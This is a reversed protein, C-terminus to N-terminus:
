VVQAPNVPLVEEVLLQLQRRDRFDNINLRYRLVAKEGAQLWGPQSQGFAMATVIRQDALRCTLRLHNQLQGVLKIAEIHFTGHFQPEPFGQGWPAVHPLQEALVATM